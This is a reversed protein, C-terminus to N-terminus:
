KKIKDCTIIITHDGANLGEINITGSSVDQVFQDNVYVMNKDCDLNDLRFDAIKDGTFSVTYTVSNSSRRMDISIGGEMTPVIAEFSGLEHDLPAIIFRKYRPLIPRVGVIYRPIINAPATAWAHNLDMNNKVDYDWAETTMDSGLVHKMYYWSRSKQSTLISHADSSKNNLYLAELLYQHFYVSGKINGLIFDLVKGKKETPVLGFVLAFVNAHVSSHSSGLADIYLGTNEDFFLKNVSERVKSAREKLFIADDYKGIENALFSLKILAAYHFSNIVTNTNSIEKISYKLNNIDDKFIRASKKYGLSQIIFLRVEKIIVAIYVPVWKTLNPQEESYNDREKQPWDIIDKIQPAKIGAQRIFEPNQNKSSILSNSTSLAILSRAKLKAYNDRIFKKDGTQLYDHYAMFVSHMIWETPWTGNSLLFEQTERALLYDSDIAYHGLQNIFSDAEYPKLERYGDIYLGAFSTAKITHKSLDYVENLTNNDSKFYSSNNKFTYTLAIQQLSSEISENCGESVEVFKFPIVGNINYPLKKNNPLNRRPLNLIYKDSSISRLDILEEFYAVSPIGVQSKDIIKNKEALEGLKIKLIDPKNEKSIDLEITGFWTNKFIFFCSDENTRIVKIPLYKTLELGNVIDFKESEHGSVANYLLVSSELKQVKQYEKICVYVLMMVITILLGLKIKNKIGVRLWNKSFM